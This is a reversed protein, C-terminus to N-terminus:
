TRPAGEHRKKWRWMQSLRKKSKEKVRTGPVPCREPTVSRTLSFAQASPTSCSSAGTVSRAWSSAQVQMPSPGAQASPTSPSCPSMPTLSPSMPSIMGDTSRMMVMFEHFDLEGDRNQDFLEVLEKLEKPTLKGLVNLESLEKVSIKGDNNADLIVFAAWCADQQCCRERDLCAALFETYSFGRNTQYIMDLDEEDLLLLKGAYSNQVEPLSCRGNLCQRLEEVSLVGDHDRDLTVYAQTYEALVEEDVMSAIIHLATRKLKNLSRFQLLNSILAVWPAEVQGTNCDVNHKKIWSDSLALKLQIRKAPNVTVMKELLIMTESAVNVWDAAPYNLQGSKIKAKIDDDDKGTFPTYGCLLYYMLIGCSWVDAMHTYSKDLVEPSMYRLTGVRRTMM